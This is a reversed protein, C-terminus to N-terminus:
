LEQMLDQYKKGGNAVIIDYTLQIPTPGGDPEEKWADLLQEALDLVTIKGGQDYMSDIDDNLNAGHKLLLRVIEHHGGYVNWSLPHM